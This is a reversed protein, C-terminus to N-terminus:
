APHRHPGRELDHGFWVPSHDDLQKAVALPRHTLEHVREIDALGGHRFVEAYQAIRTENFRPDVRLPTEVAHPEVRQALHVCPEFRIARHPRLAEVGEFTVEILRLGLLVMDDFDVMHKLRLLAEYKEILSALQEDDGKWEPANRDLHTRRYKDFGTRWGDPRADRSIVEAFADAFVKEQESPLAVTPQDTFDLGALHGYPVLVNKLCFSHVTGVFINRSEYVGLRELRRKLEGACETNFTICAVGRPPQVDEALMRAMKITLTKTKGSGPGALVVCNGKSEYAQWQAPNERLEEAATIYPRFLSAADPLSM